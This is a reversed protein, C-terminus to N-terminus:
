LSQSVRKLLHHRMQRRNSTATRLFDNLIFLILHCPCPTVELCLDYFSGIRGRISGRLTILLWTSLLGTSFVMHCSVLAGALAMHTVMKFTPREPGSFGKIVAVQAGV